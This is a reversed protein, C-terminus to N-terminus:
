TCAYVAGSRKSVCTAPPARRPHRIPSTRCAQVRLGTEAKREWSNPRDPSASNHCTGSRRPQAASALGPALCRFRTPFNTDPSTTFAAHGWFSRRGPIGGLTASSRSPTSCLCALWCKRTTNSDRLHRLDTSAPTQLPRERPSTGTAVIGIYFLIGLFTFSIVVRPASTNVSWMKRPLGCALLLFAIQLM